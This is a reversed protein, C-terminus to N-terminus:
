AAKGLAAERGTDITEIPERPPTTPDLARQRIAETALGAADCLNVFSFPWARDDAGVWAYAEWYLRQGRRRGAFRYRVLDNLAEGVVALALSREPSVTASRSWIDHFQIPRLVTPTLGNDPIGFWM